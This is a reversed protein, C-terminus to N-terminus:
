APNPTWPWEKGHRQEVLFAPEVRALGRAALERLSLAGVQGRGLLMGPVPIDLVPGIKTVFSLDTFGSFSSSNVGFVLGTAPSFVPGGSAGGHLHISTRFCPFPMRQDREVPYDQELHGDYYHPNLALHPQGDKTTFVTDPYAFTAVASGIAPAPGGLRMVHNPLLGGDRNPMIPQLRCLALDSKEHRVIAELRRFYFSGTGHLLHMCALRDAPAEDVVHRATAVLGPGVFFATGIVQLQDDDTRQVLPLVTDSPEVRHGAEAVATFREPAAIGLQAEPRRPHVDHSGCAARARAIRESRTGRRKAQGMNGRTAPKDLGIGKGQGAPTGASHLPVHLFRVVFNWM